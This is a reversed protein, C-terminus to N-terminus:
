TQYGGLRKELRTQWITLVSCLVLYYAGAILYLLMPEFTSAAILKAAGFLDPLTVLAALSSTKILTIFQNGFSPICIRVSQPLIVRVLNQSRSMGLAYGAKWQGGPISLIAARMIESSYAAESITLSIVISAFPSLLIGMGPLGYFIIFLQVLIPTCRIIWVYVRAPLRVYPKASLGALAIFLAALLGLAFSLLSIPITYLITGKLLPMLSMSIIELIRDFREQAM